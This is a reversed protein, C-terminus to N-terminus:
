GNGRLQEMRALTEEKSNVRPFSIGPHEVDLFDCLSDWGKSVDWVLLRANDITDAVEHLHQTFRDIASSRDDWNVDDYWWKKRIAALPGSKQFEAWDDSAVTARISNYWEDPDRVNLVFKAEPYCAALERYHFCCPTGCTSRYDSLVRKWTAPDDAVAKECLPILDKRKEFMESTDFSPGFGLHVLARRLSQTGCRSVGVGMVSITM